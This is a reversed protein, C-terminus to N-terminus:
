LLLLPLALCPSTASESHWHSCCIHVAAHSCYRAFPEGLLFRLQQTCPRALHLTPKTPGKKRSLAADIAHSLTTTTSSVCGGSPSPKRADPPNVSIKSSLERFCQTSPKRTNRSGGVYTYRFREPFNESSARAPLLSKRLCLLYRM